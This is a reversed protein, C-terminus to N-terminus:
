LYRVSPVAPDRAPPRRGARRGVHEQLFDIMARVKGPLFSRSPYLLWAATDFTTATVAYAPFVDILRGASLDEAVLWHPLLAPGMAALAADLLGIAPSIFFDGNVPVESVTGEADRFLWRTRFEPLIFLLCRHQALDPPGKLPPASSLYAPSAVVRYRTEMLKVAIVDSGISPALRVALDIRESVLDLNADTFLCELKLGPHRERFRSLLPVIHTQGFSVPATLRLTGSPGSGLNLAEVQARDLEDVVPEVRALFLSGAETLAVRRTTRQFLRVGIEAELAAIARSVSSPDIGCRHAAAAFSGERAVAAFLRLGHVDM